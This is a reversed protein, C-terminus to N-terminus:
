MTEHATYGSNHREGEGWLAVDGWELACLQARQADHLGGEMMLILFVADSPPSERRQPALM